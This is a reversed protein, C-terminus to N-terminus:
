YIKKQHVWRGVGKLLRGKHITGFLVPSKHFYRIHYTLLSVRVLSLPSIKIAKIHGALFQSYLLLKKIYFGTKKCPIWNVYNSPLTFFYVSFYFRLINLYGALKNLLQWFIDAKSGMVTLWNDDFGVSAQSINFFVGPGRCGWTILNLTFAGVLGVVGSLIRKTQM